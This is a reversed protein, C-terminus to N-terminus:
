QGTTAKAEFAEVGVLSVFWRGGKRIPQGFDGKLVKSYMLRYDLRLRIALDPLGIMAQAM